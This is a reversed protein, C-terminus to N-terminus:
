TSNKKRIRSLRSLWDGIKKTLKTEKSSDRQEIQKLLSDGIEKALEAKKVVQRQNERLKQLEEQSRQLRTELDDLAQLISGKVDSDDPFSQVMRLTEKKVLNFRDLEAVLRQEQRELNESNTQLEQRLLQLRKEFEANTKVPVWIETPNPENSDSTITFFVMERLVYFRDGPSQMLDPRKMLAFLIDYVHDCLAQRYVKDQKENYIKWFAAAL